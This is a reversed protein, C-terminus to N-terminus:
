LYIKVHTEQVSSILSKIIQVKSASGTFSVEKLTFLVRAGCAPDLLTSRELYSINLSINGLPRYIKLETNSSGPTLPLIIRSAKEGKYFTKDVGSVTVSDIAIESPKNTSSSIFEFTIRNSTQDQCDGQEFCSNLTLLAFVILWGSPKMAM